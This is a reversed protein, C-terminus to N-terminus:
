KNLKNIYEDRTLTNFIGIKFLKNIKDDISVNTDIKLKEFVFNIWIELIDLEANGKLINKLKVLEVKDMDFWEGSVNYTKYIKHFKNEVKKDISTKLTFFVNLRRPNGTQLENMRKFECKNTKGIKVYNNYPQEIAFYITEM